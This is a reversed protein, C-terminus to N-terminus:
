FGFDFQKEDFLTEDEDDDEPQETPEYPILQVIGSTILWQIVALADKKKVGTQQYCQEALGPWDPELYLGNTSMRWGTGNEVYDTFSKEADPLGDAGFSLPADPPLDFEATVADESLVNNAQTAELDARQQAIAQREADLAARLAEIREREIRAAKRVEIMEAEYKAKQLEALLQAFTHNEMELLEAEPRTEGYEALAAVREPLLAAREARLKELRVAELYADEKEKLGNEIPELQERLERARGDVARSFALADAKLEKRRKEVKTRLSKCHKRATAVEAYGAKDDVGAITLGGYEAALKAIVDEPMVASLTELASQVHKENENM